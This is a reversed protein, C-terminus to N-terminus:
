EDDNDAFVQRMEAAEEHATKAQEYLCLECLWPGPPGAMACLRREECSRVKM